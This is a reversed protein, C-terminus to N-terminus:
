VLFTVGLATLVEEIPNAYSRRCDMSGAFLLGLPNGQPTMVLSGSDGPKSFRDEGDQMIEFPQDFFITATGYFVDIRELALATIRGRTFGTTRGQKVVEKQEELPVFVPNLKLDDTIVRPDFALGAHLRAFACDARPAIAALRPYRGALYGVVDSGRDLKGPHLIADGERGRDCLAIVHNNSVFGPVGDSVRRAFFGLTGAGSRHHSISAGIRLPPMERSGPEAPPRAVIPGTIQVDPELSTTERAARQIEQIKEQLGKEYARDLDEQSQARIAIRFDDTAEGPAVGVAVQAGSARTRKRLGFSQAVDEKVKLATEFRM